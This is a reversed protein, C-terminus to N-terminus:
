SFSHVRFNNCKEFCDLDKLYVEVQSSWRSTQVHFLFLVVCFQLLFPTFSISASFTTTVLIGPIINYEQDWCGGFM